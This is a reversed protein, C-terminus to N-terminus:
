ILSVYRWATGNWIWLVGTDYAWYISRGLGTSTLKTGSTPKNASLGSYIYSNPEGQVRNTIVGPLVDQQKFRTNRIDNIQDQLDDIQKQLEM